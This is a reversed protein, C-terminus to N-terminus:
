QFAFAIHIGPNISSEGSVISSCDIKRGQVVVGLMACSQLYYCLGESLASVHFLFPNRSVLSSRLAVSEKEPRLFELHECPIYLFLYFCVVAACCIVFLYVPGGMVRRFSPHPLSILTSHTDGPFKRTIIHEIRM